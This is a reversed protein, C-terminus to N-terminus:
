FQGGDIQHKFERILDVTVQTTTALSVEVIKQLTDKRVVFTLNRGQQLVLCRGTHNEEACQVNRSIVTTLNTLMEQNESPQSSITQLKKNSILRLPGLFINHTM